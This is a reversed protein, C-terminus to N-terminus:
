RRRRGNLKRAIQEHWHEALTDTPVPIALPAPPPTDTPLDNIMAHTSRTWGRLFNKVPELIPHRESYDRYDRNLALNPTLEMFRNLEVSHILPLESRAFVRKEWNGLLRMFPTGDDDKDSQVSLIWRAARLHMQWKRNLMQQVGLIADARQWEPSLHGPYFRLGAILIDNRTLLGALGEKKQATRERQAQRKAKEDPYSYSPYLSERTTSMEIKESKENQENIM